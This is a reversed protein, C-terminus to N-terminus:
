VEEPLARRFTDLDKDYIFIRTCECQVANTGNSRSELLSAKDLQRTCAPCMRKQLLVKQMPEIFKKIM